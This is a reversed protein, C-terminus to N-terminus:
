AARMTKTRSVAMPRPTHSGKVMPLDVAKSETRQEATVRYVEIRIEFDLQIGMSKELDNVQGNPCHSNDSVWNHIGNCEQDFPEGERGDKFQEIHSHVEHHRRNQVQDSLYSSLSCCVLSVPVQSRHYTLHKCSHLSVLQAHVKWNTRPVSLYKM